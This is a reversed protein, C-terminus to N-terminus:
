EFNAKGGTLKKVLLMFCSGGGRVDASVHVRAGDLVVIIPNTSTSDMRHHLREFTLMIAESNFFASSNVGLLKMSHKRAANQAVLSPEEMKLTEEPSHENLWKVIKDIEDVGTNKVKPTKDKKGEKRKKADAHSTAVKYIQEGGIVISSEMLQGELTSLTLASAM